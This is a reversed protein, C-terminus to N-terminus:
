LLCLLSLGLSPTKTGTTFKAMQRGQHQHIGCVLKKTWFGVKLDDYMEGVTVESDGSRKQDSPSSALTPTVVAVANTVPATPALTTPNAQRVDSKMHERGVYYGVALCVVAVAPMLWTANTRIWATSQTATMFIGM